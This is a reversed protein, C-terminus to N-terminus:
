TEFIDFVEKRLSAIKEDTNYSLAIQAINELYGKDPGAVYKDSQLFLLVDVNFRHEPTLEKIKRGRTHYLSKGKTLPFILETDFINGALESKLIIPNNGILHLHVDTAAYYLNWNDINQHPPCKLYDIIPKM